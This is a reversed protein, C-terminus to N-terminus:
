SQSGCSLARLIRKTLWCTGICHDFRTHLATPYVLYAAGLQKIGRLRQMQPTDLISVEESTLEIDGHICDRVVVTM